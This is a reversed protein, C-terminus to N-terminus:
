LLNRIYMNLTSLLLRGLVSFGLCRRNATDPIRKGRLTSPGITWVFCCCDKRISLQGLSPREPVPPHSLSTRRLCRKKRSSPAESIVSILRMLSCPLCPTHTHSTLCHAIAWVGIVSTPLLKMRSSFEAIPKLTSQLFHNVIM